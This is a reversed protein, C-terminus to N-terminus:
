TGGKYEGWEGLPHHDPSKQNEKNYRGVRGQVMWAKAGKTAGPNKDNYLEYPYLYEWYMGEGARQPRQSVAETSLAKSSGLKELVAEIFWANRL